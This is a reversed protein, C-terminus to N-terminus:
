LWNSKKKGDLSKRVFEQVFEKQRSLIGCCFMFGWEWRLCHLSSMSGRPDMCVKVSALVPQNRPDGCQFEWIQVASWVEKILMLVESTVLKAGSAICHWRLIRKKPAALLAPEINWTEEEELFELIGGVKEWFEERSDRVVRWLWPAIPVEREKKVPQGANVLSTMRFLETNGWSDLYWVYM